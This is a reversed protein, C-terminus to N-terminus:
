KIEILKEVASLLKDNTKQVFKIKCLLKNLHKRIMEVILGTLFIIIAVIIVKVIQSRGFILEGKDIGIFGYITCRAYGGDHILYVGLVLNSIYNIIKSKFSFTSFLVFVAISQLVLIPSSYSNIFDGISKGVFNLINSDIACLEKQTMCLSFNILLGVFFVSICVIRKQIKNTKSLWKKELEYKRIYAGIFYMLIFQEISYMNYKWALGMTLYPVIGFIIILMIILKKLIIRDAKEIVKNIYPSLIYMILYCYVFWYSNLNFPSIENIFGINTYVAIGFGKLLCNVLINYFWVQFLIAFVKKLKFESKSQFYGMILIFCNVHIMTFFKIFEFMVQLSGTTNEIVNGHFIVHYLVILFMSIIRLLEFSSERKNM